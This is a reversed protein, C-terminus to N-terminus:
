SIGWIIEFKEGNTKFITENKINMRANVTKPYITYIIELLTIQENTKKAKITFKDGPDYEKKLPGV